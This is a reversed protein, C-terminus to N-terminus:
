AGEQGSNDPHASIAVARYQVPGFHRSAVCHGADDTVVTGMRAAVQDIETRMQEDAGRPPFVYIDAWRPPCTQITKFSLRWLASEPSSVAASM